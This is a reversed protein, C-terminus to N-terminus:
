DILKGALLFCTLVVLDKKSESIILRSLVRETYDLSLYLTAESFNYHKILRMLKPLILKREGCCLFPLQSKNLNGILKLPDVEIKLNKHIPTVAKNSDYSLLGCDRCFSFDSKINLFEKHSCKPYLEAM